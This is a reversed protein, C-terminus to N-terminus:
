YYLSALKNKFNKKAQARVPAWIDVARVHWTRGLDVEWWEEEGEQGGLM